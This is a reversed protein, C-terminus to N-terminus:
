FAAARVKREGERKRGPAEMGKKRHLMQRGATEGSEWGIAVKRSMKRKFLAFNEKSTLTQIVPALLIM